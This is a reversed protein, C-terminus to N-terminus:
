AAVGLRRIGLSVGKKVRHAEGREEERGGQAGGGHVSVNLKKEWGYSREEDKGQNQHRSQDCKKECPILELNSGWVRSFSIYTKERGNGSFRSM